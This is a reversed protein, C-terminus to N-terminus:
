ITGGIGMRIAAKELHTVSFEEHLAAALNQAIKCQNVMLRLGGKRKSIHYLYKICERNFDAGAYIGEIDDMTYANHLPCKYVVRSYLQDLEEEQKGYMRKLISPNGSYVIGIHAKDNIARVADFSKETLHQAEDIILLRNTGTLRSIILQMIDATSGKPEEGMATLILKLVCRPSNTTVDTEVYITGNNNQQYDRLATSKGCGAPGYIVVIEGYLHAIKAKEQIAKTNGVSRCIAPARAVSRRATGMRIYQGAKKALEQNNGTYTGSLFLSLTTKSIGLEKAVNSQSEQADSIYAALSERMESVYDKYTQEAM